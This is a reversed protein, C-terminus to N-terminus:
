GPLLYRVDSRKRGERGLGSGHRNRWLYRIAAITEDVTPIVIAFSIAASVLCLTCGHHFILLQALVLALSVAAFAFALAGQLIAVWPTSRWRDASGWGAILLELLYGLAGAFADPFQFMDEFGRSLASERLIYRSGDGFFPEWVKDLYHWQYVTLYMSVALGLIAMAGIFIRHPAGSPNHHWGPPILQEASIPDDEDM